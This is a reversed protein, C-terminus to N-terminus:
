ATAIDTTARVADNRRDNDSPPPYETKANVKEPTVNGVIAINEAM